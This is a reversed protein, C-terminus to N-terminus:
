EGFSIKFVRDNGNADKDNIEINKGGVGLMSNLIKLAENAAKLNNSELAKQLIREGINFNREILLERYLEPNKPQLYKLASYYYRDSQTDSLEWKEKCYKLIQQRTQASNVIMEALEYIRAQTSISSTKAKSLTPTGKRLKM